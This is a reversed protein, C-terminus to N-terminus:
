HGQGVKELYFMKFKLIEFVAFALASMQVSKLNKADQRCKVQRFHLHDNVQEQLNEEVQASCATSNNKDSHQRLKLTESTQRYLRGFHQRPLVLVEFLQLYNDQHICRTAAKNTTQM